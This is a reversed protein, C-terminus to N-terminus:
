FIEQQEWIYRERNQKGAQRSHIQLLSRVADSNASQWRKQAVANILCMIDKTEADSRSAVLQWNTSGDRSFAVRCCTMAEWDQTTIVQSQGSARVM